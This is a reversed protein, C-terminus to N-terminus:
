GAIVLIVPCVPVTELHPLGQSSGGLTPAGRGISLSVMTHIYLVRIIVHILLTLIILICKVPVLVIHCMTTLDGLPMVMLRVALDLLLGQLGGVKVGGISVIGEIGEIIM